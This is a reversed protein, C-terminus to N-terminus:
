CVPWQAVIKPNWYDSFLSLKDSINVKEISM